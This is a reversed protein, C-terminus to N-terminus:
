CYKKLLIEWAFKLAFTTQNFNLTNYYYNSLYIMWMNQNSFSYESIDILDFNLGRYNNNIEWGAATGNFKIISFRNLDLETLSSPYVNLERQIEDINKLQLYPAAAKEIQFDYNWTIINISKPLNPFIHGLEFLTAFFADYRLDVEKEFQINILFLSLLAKLKRLESKRNTLFLKRAFTDITLHGQAENMLAFCDKLMSAKIENLSFKIDYHSDFPINSFNLRELGNLFGIIERNLDKVPPISNASAGAGLLYTIKTNM